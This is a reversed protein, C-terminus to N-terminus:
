GAVAEFRIVATFEEGPAVVPMPPDADERNLANNCHPVPEFCFRDEGKPIYVVAAPLDSTILLELPRGEWAIRARGDWRFRGFGIRNSWPVLPFSALDFRRGSAIEADDACRLM